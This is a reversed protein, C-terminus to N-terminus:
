VYFLTYMCPFMNNKGSIYYRNNNLNVIQKDSYQSIIEKFNNVRRRYFFVKKYTQM